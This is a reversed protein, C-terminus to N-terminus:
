SPPALSAERWKTAQQAKGWAEYLDVLDRAVYLPENTGTFRSSAETAAELLIAEAEDFRKQMIMSRALHRKMTCARMARGPPKDAYEVISQRILPEAEAHRGRRYLNIGLAGRSRATEYHGPVLRREQIELAQRLLSEEEDPGHTKLSPAALNFLASAVAPHDRGFLQERMSLAERILTEAKAHEGTQNLAAGLNILTRATRDDNVKYLERQVDLTQQLLKVAEALSTRGGAAAFGLNGKIQAVLETREGGTLQIARPLIEEFIAAAKDIEGMLPWLMAKAQWAEIVAIHDDGLLAQRIEIARDALRHAEDFEEEKGLMASLRLMSHAVDLHMEGLTAKRMQLAAAFQSRALSYLGLSQYAEGITTRITALAEPENALAGSDLRAVAEDLLASIPANYARTQAPDASALMQNLFDNIQQATEQAQRTAIEAARAHLWAWSVAVLGVGLGGLVVALAVVIAQHRRIFKRAQYLANPPHALVTDGQLWRRLDAALTDATPYREEPDIALAKAVIADLERNVGDDFTSPRPPQQQRASDVAAAFSAQPERLPRGTLLTFLIAGLAYVDGRTDVPAEGTLQEPAAFAPTGVFGGVRSAASAGSEEDMIRALGFDLVHPQNNADVLINTPKLDRHIVGRHHAHAVADCVSAILQVTEHLSNAGAARWRDIPVGDVFEMVLVPQGDDVACQHVTVIGPHHLSAATRMEREFRSKAGTSAWVGATMRKLAVLRQTGPQRAKYVVGQAGRGIEMLLEYGALLGLPLTSEARRLHCLWLEETDLGFSQELPAGAHSTELELM